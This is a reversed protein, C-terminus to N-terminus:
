PRTADGIRHQRGLIEEGVLKPCAIDSPKPILGHRRECLRDM